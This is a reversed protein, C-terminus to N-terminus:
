SLQKEMSRVFLIKDLESPKLSTRRQNLIWGASSFEREVNTTTAPISLISRALQSLFPFQSRNNKWFKLPETADNNKEIEILLYRDLEDSKKIDFDYEESGSSSYNENTTDEEGNDSEFRSFLNTEKKLRKPKPDLPKNQLNEESNAKDQLLKIQRRVYRYSQNKLHEPFRKLSRYRPHLLTAVVHRIDMVFMEKLLSLLRQRFWSIGSYFLSFLKLFYQLIKFLKVQYNM